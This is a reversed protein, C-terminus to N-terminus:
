IAGTELFRQLDGTRRAIIEVAHERIRPNSLHGAQWRCSALHRAALLAELYEDYQPPLSRQSLYGALWADYLEQYRNDTKLLLLTPALDYLYYGWSLDDFDIVAVGSGTFLFNKPLFDSHIIGFSEPISDLTAFVEQVRTEVERFVRNQEPTFIRVGHGPNYPSVEGFLGSWDLRPRQFDPQPVWNVAFNHLRALLASAEQLKAVSIESGSFFDGEIWRYLVCPLTRELSEIKAFTVWEGSMDSVPRPVRFNAGHLIRLWLVESEIFDVPKHGPRSIRLVYQGTTVSIKFVANNAYSLLEIQPTVFGYRALVSYAASTLQAVQQEYSLNAFTM